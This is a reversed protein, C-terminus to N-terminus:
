HAPLGSCTGLQKLPTLESLGSYLVHRFECILLLHRLGPMGSTAWKSPLTAGTGRPISSAPCTRATSSPTTSGGSAATRTAKVCRRSPASTTPMSVASWGVVVQSVLGKDCVCTLVLRGGYPICLVNVYLYTSSQLLGGIGNKDTSGPTRSDAASVFGAGNMLARYGGGSVAIAVNPLDKVDPAVRKIYAEADFGEINARKLFQIMPDVTNQRRQKLWDSESKSLENARRITPKDKPCQVQAPAYSGSPANPRARPNLILDDKRPIPIPIPEATALFPQLLALPLLAHFHM